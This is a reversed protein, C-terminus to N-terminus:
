RVSSRSEVVVLALVTESATVVMRAVEGSRAAPPRAGLLKGPNASLTVSPFPFTVVGLVGLFKSLEMSPAPNAEPSFRVMEVPVVCDGTVVLM